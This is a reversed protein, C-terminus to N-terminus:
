SGHFRDLNPFYIGQFQNLFDDISPFTLKGPQESNNRWEGEFLQTKSQKSSPLTCKCQFLNELVCRSKHIQRPIWSIANPNKINRQSRHVMMNARINENPDLSMKKPERFNSQFIHIHM